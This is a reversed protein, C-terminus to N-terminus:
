MTPRGVMKIMGKDPLEKPKYIVKKNELHFAIRKHLDDLPFVPRKRGANLREYEGGIGDLLERITPEDLTPLHRDFLIVKGYEGSATAILAKLKEEDLNYNDSALLIEIIRTALQRSGRIMEPTIVAILRLQNDKILQGAKLMLLRDANDVEFEDLDELYDDFHELLLVIHLPSHNTKIRDYNVTTLGILRTYILEEVKDDALETTDLDSYPESFAAILSKYAGLSLRNDQLIALELADTNKKEFRSGPALPIAGLAAAVEAFNLYKLLAEDNEETYYVLVNEWTAKVKNHTFLAPYLSKDDIETIDDIVAKERIILQEKNTPDINEDNLLDTVDKATDTLEETLKLLVNKVYDDKAQNIYNYMTECDSAVITSYNATSLNNIELEKTNKSEIIARINKATVVYHDGDYALNFLAQAQWVAQLQLFKINLKKLIDGIRKDDIEPLFSSVVEFHDDIYDSLHQTINLNLLEDIDAHALILRLYKQTVTHDGKNEFYTFIDPWQKCLLKVFIPIHAGKEVYTAIFTLARAGSTDLQAIVRDGIKALEDRRGLLEDLLTINLIADKEFDYDALMEILGSPKELAYEFPLAIRDNVSTLFKLDARGISGPYFYSILYPYSLDIYGESLLYRLLRNEIKTEQLDAFESIRTRIVESATYSAVKNRKAYLQRVDAQLRAITSVSKNKVAKEREDYTFGPAVAKEIELFKYNSTASSSNVNVYRINEGSM